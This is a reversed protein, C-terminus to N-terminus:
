SLTQSDPGQNTITFQHATNYLHISLKLPQQDSNEALVEHVHEFRLPRRAPDVQHHRKLRALTGGVRELVFREVDRQREGEDVVVLFVAYNM